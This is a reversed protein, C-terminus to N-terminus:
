WAFDIDCVEFKGKSGVVMKLYKMRGTRTAMDYTTKIGRIRAHEPIQQGEYGEEEINMQLTGIRAMLASDMVGDRRPRAELMAIARRRIVPDRCKLVVNYLSSVIPDDFTFIARQTETTGNYALLSEALDLIEEYDDRYADYSTEGKFHDARLATYISRFRLELTMAAAYEKGGAATRSHLWLQQFASRWRRFRELYQEREEMFSQLPPKSQAKKNGPEATLKEYMDRIEAERSSGWAYAKAIWHLFESFVSELVARAEDLDIFSEPIFQLATTLSLPQNFDVPEADMIMMSDNDLRNFARMLDTSGLFSTQSSKVSGFGGPKERQRWEGIIKLGSRIQTVASQMDGNLAEFCVTLLCLFLANRYDQTGTSLVEKMQKIAKGYQQLAFQHHTLGESIRSQILSYPMNKESPTADLTKDLAGIAIVAHRIPLNDECAQLILQTWLSCNFYGALISATKECFTCFYRHEQETVFRNSRPTYLFSTHSTTKPITLRPQIPKPKLVIASKVAPSAYGNCETGFKLCRLCFPKTEDCKVRRTRYLLFLIDACAFM